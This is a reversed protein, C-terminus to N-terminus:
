KSGELATEIHTQFDGAVCEPTGPVCQFPIAGEILKGNIFFSPTGQVGAAEATESSKAADNIHKGSNVCSAFAQGDLGAQQAYLALSNADYNGLNQFLLSSYEWYKGQDAACLATAAISQASADFGLIHAIYYVKSTKIYQEDIKPETNLFHDQCHSCVFSSVDVITVPANPDGKSPCPISGCMALGTPDNTVAVSTKPTFAGTLALVAVVVIVVGGIILVLVGAPLDQRGGKKIVKRRVKAV